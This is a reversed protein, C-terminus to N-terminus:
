VIRKFKKDLEYHTMSIMTPRGHPCHYPDELKLLDRILARIEEGSLSSSGKVAAKCAKAAIRDPLMASTGTESLSDLLDTFFAESDAIYLNAPVGSIKWERGEFHEIVFGLEEFLTLNGAFLDNEAATLTILKAPMLFQTSVKKSNLDKMYKEYMVKEHAAHQDIIYLTNKYEILIYTGFAQGIVSFVPDIGNEKDDFISLQKERVLEPMLDSQKRIKEKEFRKVEFPQPACPMKIEEPKQVSDTISLSPYDNEANARQLVEGATEPSAEATCSVTDTKHSVSSLELEPIEENKLLVGALVDRLDEYVRSQESFRVEMKSPHVNVDVKQRDIEIELLTFPFRQQMLHGKYAEEIASAIIKDKVYRGNIYYNEFNRTGRSLAPLGLYGRVKLLDTECDAPILLRTIDRGFIRYACELLDGSGSTFLVQRGDATYNFSIGPHSLALQEMFSTIANKEALDSKLFGSRVPTNYFLDRVLITTGYPAGIESLVSEQGGEMRLRVGTLNGKTRTILEIRSVAAISSLAEGRFGLSDIKTLDSIERLKSTAHRMFALEAEDPEIGCGNDTVRILAKGGKRVEVTISDAGSDISNEVLEKVVSAPREVVEGAAISDITQEDLLHIKSM